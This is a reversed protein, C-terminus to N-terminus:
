DYSAERVFKNGNIEIYDVEDFNFKKLDVITFDALLMYSGSGMNLIFGKADGPNLQSTGIAFNKGGTETDYTGISCCPLDKNVKMM